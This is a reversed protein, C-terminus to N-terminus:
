AFTKLFIHKNADHIQTHYAHIRHITTRCKDTIPCYLFLSLLLATQYEQLDIKVKLHSVINKLNPESFLKSGQLFFHGTKLVLKFETTIICLGLSLVLFFETVALLLTGAQPKTQSQQWMLFQGPEGRTLSRQRPSFHGPQHGLWVKNGCKFTVWNAALEFETTM